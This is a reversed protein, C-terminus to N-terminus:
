IKILSFVMGKFKIIIKKPFLKISDKVISIYELDNRKHDAWINKYNKILIVGKDNQTPPSLIYVRRGDITKSSKDNILINLFSSLPDVYNILKKYDIRALEKEKPNMFIDFIKQNDFIIKVEREKKKTKWYQNYEKPILTNDNVSGIVSYEGQFSYLKSLFGRDRLKISTLYQKDDMTIKWTLSGISIGKIKLVYESKLENAMILNITLFYFFFINFLLKM